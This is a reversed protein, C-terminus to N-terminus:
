GIDVMHQSSNAMVSADNVVLQDNILEQNSSWQEVMSGVMMWWSDSSTEIM